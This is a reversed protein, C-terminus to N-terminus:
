NIPTMQQGYQCTVPRYHQANDSNCKIPLYLTAGEYKSPGPTLGASWMVQSLNQLVHSITEV